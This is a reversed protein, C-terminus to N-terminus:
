TIGEALVPVEEIFASILDEQGKEQVEIKVIAPGSFLRRLTPCDPKVNIHITEEGTEPVQHYFTLITDILGEVVLKWGDFRVPVWASSKATKPNAGLLIPTRM